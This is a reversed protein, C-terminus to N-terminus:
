PTFAYLNNNSAVFVRGKAILPAQFYSLASLTDGGGGGDFLVAGTEGDYAYLRNSGMTWVIADQGPASMSVAPVSMGTHTGCWASAIAPGATVKVAVFNGTGSNSCSVGDGSGDIRAALFTGASTTYAVAAGNLEGNAVAAQTLEGGIGGLNSRDLLYVNGDKGFAGVLASPTVGPADFPLGTGMDLDNNDLSVWNAPAWYDASATSWSPGATFRYMGDGGGWTSAGFTNGTAIFLHAGDSSIGSPNWIGGGQAATNFATVSTPNAVDIGLVWGYYTGCDGYHGGYPVYLKGGELLLAGRQNQYQSQFAPTHGSLASEVDVPWGSKLSGDDLSLAYVKHKKTNGNDPTTMAALYITRSALDVYPTGTIGLPNINGCPLKNLAVPPDPLTVKWLQGGDAADIAEVENQETAVLLVDKGNLAGDLFLPQAYTPGNLAAAFTPDKHMTAVSTQTLAPDYYVGTRMADNHQQVVSVGADFGGAGGGAGGGTSGGGAGGGAAGGGTGGGVAGGGTGGGVSGGGAGGGVSGGGTGGGSSGGGGGGGDLNGVTGGCTCGSSALCLVAVACALNRM